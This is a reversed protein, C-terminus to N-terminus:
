LCERVEGRVAPRVRDQVGGREEGGLGSARLQVRGCLAGEEGRGEGPGRRVRWLISAPDHCSFNPLFSVRAAAQLLLQLDQPLGHQRLRSYNPHPHGRSSIDPDISRNYNIFPAKSKQHRKFNPPKSKQLLSVLSVKYMLLLLIVFNM